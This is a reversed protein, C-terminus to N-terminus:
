VLLRHDCGCPYLTRGALCLITAPIQCTKRFVHLRLQVKSSALLSTLNCLVNCAQFTIRFARLGMFSKLCAPSPPTALPVKQCSHKTYILLFAVTSLCLHQARHGCLLGLAPLISTSQSAKWLLHQGGQIQPALFPLKRTSVTSECKRPLLRTLKRHQIRSVPSDDLHQGAPGLAWSM